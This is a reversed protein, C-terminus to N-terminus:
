IMVLIEFLASRKTIAEGDDDDDVDDDDDDSVVYWTRPMTRACMYLARTAERADPRCAGNIIDKIVPVERRPPPGVLTEALSLMSVARHLHPQGRSLARARGGFRGPFKIVAIVIRGNSNM